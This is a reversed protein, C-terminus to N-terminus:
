LKEPEIITGSTIHQLKRPNSLYFLLCGQDKKMNSSTIRGARYEFWMKSKSQQRTVSEVLSVQEETIAVKVQQVSKTLPEIDSGVDKDNKLKTLPAPLDNELRVATPIFSRNFPAKISLMVSRTGSESFSKMLEYVEEESPEMDSYSRQKKGSAEQSTSGLSDDFQKKKRASSTFDTNSVEEYQLKGLARPLLWYAKEQTVTKQGRIRVAAEIYFLVAAVHSCTGSRAVM